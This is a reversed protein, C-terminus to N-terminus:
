GASGLDDSSGALGAPSGETVSLGATCLGALRRWAGVGCWFSGVGGVLGAGAEVAGVAGTVGTAVAAGSEAGTLSDISTQIGL